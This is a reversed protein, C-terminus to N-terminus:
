EDPPTYPYNDGTEEWENPLFLLKTEGDEWYAVAIIRRTTAADNKVYFRAQIDPDSVVKKFDEVFQDARARNELVLDPGGWGKGTILFVEGNLYRGVLSNYGNNYTSCYIENKDCFATFLAGNILHTDQPHNKDFAWICHGVGGLVCDYAYASCSAVALVGCTILKSLLKM